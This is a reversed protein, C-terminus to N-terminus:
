AYNSYRNLVILFRGGPHMTVSTPYLGVKIKKKVKREAVDFVAVENGPENESGSLAIYLKKGDLSLALGFAHDRRPQPEPHPNPNAVPKLDERKYGAGYAFRASTLLGYRSLNSFAPQSKLASVSKDSHCASQLLVFVALMFLLGSLGARVFLDRLGKAKM